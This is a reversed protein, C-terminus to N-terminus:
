AAVKYKARFAELTYVPLGLSRAKVVKSANADPDKAVVCTTKSSVSSGLRGGNSVILAELAADRVGTFVIVLGKFQPHAAAAPASSPGAVASVPKAGCAAAAAPLDRQFAQFAKHGELFSAATKPGIGPVAALAAVSPPPAGLRGVDPFEAAVLALKRAGFGAGFANSAKMWDLCSAAAVAKAIDRVLNDASKQQVGQIRMLATADAALWAAISTFGAAFGRQIMGEGLGAVGLSVSWHLLRRMTLAENDENGKGDAKLRLEVGTENWEYPVGEPMAPIAAHSVVSQVFPIVDGSRVILLRAGLGIGKDRIFAGNFGTTRRITVGNLVVPEFLITPKLLGHKSVNWEVETVIVEAADHTVMSKFAFAHKPNKGVVQVITKDHSVVIGDVEYLSDERRAVLRESLAEQTLASTDLAEHWPTMFGAATMAKWGDTLTAPRPDVLEYAVFHLAKAVEADPHKANLTGATVNRANAGKHALRKWASRSLLWEGRVAKISGNPAPLTGKTLHATLATIDQGVHGDGRTYLKGEVWLGSVGDLKDSVWARPPDNYKGKWRELAKPDDKIKDLSGMFFPLKVKRDDDARVPAGVENLFPHKPNLRRLQAKLADFADDTLLEADGTGNYYADRAAELAAVVQAEAEANHKPKPAMTTNAENGVDTKNLGEDSKQQVEEESEPIEIPHSELRETRKADKNRFFSM